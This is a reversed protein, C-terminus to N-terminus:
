FPIDGGNTNDRDAPDTMDFVEVIDGNDLEVKLAKADEHMKARHAMVDEAITRAWRRMSPALPGTAQTTVWSGDALLWVVDGTVPDLIYFARGETKM